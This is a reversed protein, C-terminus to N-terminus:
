KIHYLVFGGRRERGTNWLEGLDLWKCSGYTVAKVKFMDGSDDYGNLLFWHWVYNRYKKNRHNLVLTPIPYGHDIQYRVAEEATEYPETGHLPSMDLRTEGRDRLYQAYGDIYIDLRDIGTSRPSLYPKMEYAFRVYGERTLDSANGPAIETLGRHLAFYVSSDCATEAGCGGIRMMFTPFWDQNGGYSDGIYFHDLEHKM